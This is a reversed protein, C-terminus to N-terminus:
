PVRAVPAGSCAMFTVAGNRPTDRGVFRLTRRATAPCTGLLAESGIGLDADIYCYGNAAESTAALEQCERRADGSTQQIECV